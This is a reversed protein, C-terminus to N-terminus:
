EKFTVKSLFNIKFVFYCAFFCVQMQARKKILIKIGPGLVMDAFTTVWQVDGRYINIDFWWGVGGGGGGSRKKYYGQVNVLCLCLVAICIVTRMAATPKVGTCFGLYKSKHKICKYIIQFDNSYNGGSTFCYKDIKPM